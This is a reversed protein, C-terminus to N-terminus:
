FFPARFIFVSGNLNHKSQRRAFKLKCETLTPKAM